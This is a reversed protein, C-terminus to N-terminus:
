DMDDYNAMVDVNEMFDSDARLEDNDEDMLNDFDEDDGDAAAAEKVSKEGLTDNM